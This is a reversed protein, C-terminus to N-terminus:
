PQQPVLHTADAYHARPEDQSTSDGSSCQRRHRNEVTTSWQHHFCKDTWQNARTSKHQVWKRKPAHSHDAVNSTGQNHQSTNSPYDWSESAGYFHEKGPAYSLM